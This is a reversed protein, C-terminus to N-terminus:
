SGELFLAAEHLRRLLLGKDPNGNVHDWRIFEAPVSLWDKQNIVTLLTSTKLSAPGLNFVFSILAAEQKPTLPVKVLYRVAVQFRDIDSELRQEAQELTWVTDKNIDTGTAGYGVTWIGGGDQYARLQCGEHQRIFNAAIQADFAM